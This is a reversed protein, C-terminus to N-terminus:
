RRPPSLLQLLSSLAVTAPISASIPEAAPTSSASPTSSSKKQNKHRPPFIPNRDGPNSGGPDYGLASVVAIDDDSALKQRTSSCRM